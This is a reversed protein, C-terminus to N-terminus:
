SAGGNDYRAQRRPTLRAAGLKPNIEYMPPRIEPNLIDLQVLNKVPFIEFDSLFPETIRDSFNSSFDLIKM